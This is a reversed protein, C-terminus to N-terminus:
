EAPTRRLVAMGRGSMDTPPRPRDADFLSIGGENRGTEPHWAELALGGSRAVLDAFARGTCRRLGWHPGMKFTLSRGAVGDRVRVVGADATIEIAGRRMTWAEGKEDERGDQACFSVDLVYVGGPLLNAVMARLHATASADDPLIHFSGLPNFAVHCPEDLLFDTMDARITRVDLQAESAKRALFDLMPQRNDLGTVRWGLRALRLAVQGTGCGVELVRGGDPAGRCRFLHSYFWAEDGRDWGFLIDYYLPYDYISKGRPAM